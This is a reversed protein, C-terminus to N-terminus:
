VESNLKRAKERKEDLLRLIPPEPGQVGKEDMLERARSEEEIVQDYRRDLREYTDVIYDSNAVLATPAGPTGEERLETVAEIDNHQVQYCLHVLDGFDSVGDFMALQSCWRELDLFGAEGDRKVAAVWNEDSALEDLEEVADFVGGLSVVVDHVASELEAEETAGKQYGDLAAAYVTVQEELLGAYGAVADVRDMLEEEGYRPDVLSM